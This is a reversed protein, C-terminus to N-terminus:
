WYFMMWGILGAAMGFMAPEPGAAYLDSNVTAFLTGGIGSIFYFVMMRMAGLNGELMFGVLM